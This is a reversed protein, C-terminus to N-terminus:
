AAAHQAAFRLQPRAVLPAQQSPALAGRAYARFTPCPVETPLACLGARRFYCDACTAKALKAVTEGREQQGEKAAGQSRGDVSTSVLRAGSRQLGRALSFM